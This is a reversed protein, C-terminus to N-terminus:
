KCDAVAGSAFQVKASQESKDITVSFYNDGFVATADDQSIATLVTDHWVPRPVVAQQEIICEGVSYQPGVVATTFKLQYRAGVLPADGIHPAGCTLTHWMPGGPIPHPPHGVPVGYSEQGAIAHVSLFVSFALVMSRSLVKM